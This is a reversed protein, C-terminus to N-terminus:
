PVFVSLFIFTCTSWNATSNRPPFTYLFIKLLHGRHDHGKVQLGLILPSWTWTVPYIGVFNSWIQHLPQRNHHPFFIYVWMGVTVGVLQGAVAFWYAGKRRIPAYFHYPRFAFPFILCQCQYVICYTCEIIHSICYHLYIPLLTILLHITKFSCLFRRNVVCISFM